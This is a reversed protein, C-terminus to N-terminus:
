AFFNRWSEAFAFCSGAPGRRGRAELLVLLRGAGTTDHPHDLLDDTVRLHELGLGHLGLRVRLLGVLLEHLVRVAGDLLLGPEDGLLRALLGLGLLVLGSGSLTLLSRHRLRLLKRVLVRVQVLGAVERELVEVDALLSPVLLDFGQPLRLGDQRSGLLVTGSSLM